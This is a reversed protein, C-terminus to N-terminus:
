KGSTIRVESGKKANFGTTLRIEKAGQIILNKQPEIITMLSLSITSEIQQYNTLVQITQTVPKSAVLYFAGKKSVINNARNRVVIIEPYLKSTKVEWISSTVLESYTNADISDKITRFNAPNVVVSELVLQKNYTYVTSNAEDLNLVKNGSVLTAGIGLSALILCYLGILCFYKM